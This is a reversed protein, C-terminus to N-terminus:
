NNDRLYYYNLKVRYHYGDHTKGHYVTLGTVKEDRTKLTYISFTAAIAGINPLRLIDHTKTYTHTQTHTHTHTQAHTQTHTHQCVDVPLVHVM